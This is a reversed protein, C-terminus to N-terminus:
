KTAFRAIVEVRDKAADLQKKTSAPNLRVSEAAALVQAVTFDPRGDRDFDFPTTLPM